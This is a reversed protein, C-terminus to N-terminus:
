PSRIRYYRQPYNTSQPDSFYISGNTVSGSFLPTWAGGMNTCAEVVVPISATGTLNFGFQNTRIGFSSNATQMQPNWLKTAWGGFTAGWNTTNPQYYVTGTKNSFVTNDESGAGGNVSPANGQFYVKQLLPAYAFAFGSINTVSNPIMMNTLGRCWAFAYNRISTVSNPIMVNTLGRCGAFAYDRIIAVSNSIAYNGIIGGPCAVLTTMTKDFLVGGINTYNLNVADMGINTLTACLAFAGDGIYTVSNPITVRPLGSSFFAKDGISSVSNGITVNTLLYCFSFANTGIDLVSGPITVSRLLHCGDFAEGGISVVNTGIIVNTMGYCDLFAGKGINIVSNPITMSTLNNDASFAFDGINTISDPLMVSNLDFCLSFAMFGICTVPYGNTSSPVTVNVDSGSFRTITITNDSNTICSFQAWGWGCEPLAIVGIGVALWTLLFKKM